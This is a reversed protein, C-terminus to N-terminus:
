STVVCLEDYRNKWFPQLMCIAMTDTSAQVLAGLIM